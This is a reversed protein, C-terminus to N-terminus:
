NQGTSPKEEKTPRTTGFNFLPTRTPKVSVTVTTPTVTPKKYIKEMRKKLREIDACRAKLQNYIAELENANSVTGGRGGSENWGTEKSNESTTKTETPKERLEPRGSVPVAAYSGGILKTCAMSMSELVSNIHDARSTDTPMPKQSTAAKVEGEKKFLADFPWFASVSSAFLFSAVVGTLLGTTITKTNM